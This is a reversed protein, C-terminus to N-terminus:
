QTPWPGEKPDSINFLDPTRFIPWCSYILVAATCIPQMHWNQLISFHGAQGTVTTCWDTATQKETCSKTSCYPLLSCQWVAHLIYILRLLFCFKFLKVQMNVNFCLFCTLVNLTHSHATQVSHTYNLSTYQPEKTTWPAFVYPAMILLCGLLYRFLRLM